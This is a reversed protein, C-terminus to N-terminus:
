YNYSLAGTISHNLHKNLLLQIPKTEENDLHKPVVHMSDLQRGRTTTNQIDKVPWKSNKKETTVHLIKNRPRIRGLDSLM